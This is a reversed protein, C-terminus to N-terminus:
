LNAFLWRLTQFIVNHDSQLTESLERYDATAGVSGVPLM